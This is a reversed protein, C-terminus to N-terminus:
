PSADAAEWEGCWDTPETSPWRTGFPEWVQPPRRRCRPATYYRCTACVPSPPPLLGTGDNDAIAQQVQLALPLSLAVAAVLAGGFPVDLAVARGTAESEAAAATLATWLDDPTDLTM